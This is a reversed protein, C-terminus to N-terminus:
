PSPAGFEFEHLMQEVKLIEDSPLAAAVVAEKM